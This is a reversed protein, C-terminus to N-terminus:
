QGEPALGARWSPKFTSNALWRIPGVLSSISQALFPFDIKSIEDSPAHYDPHLGFSSITHAVVGQLALNYNDSREFFNQEPHPDALVRAGHRALEPGLNSREFGTLWVRGKGVKPDARGIMEFNINAIIRELPVPSHSLFYSSGLGGLEESGFCVFYITRKPRPGTALFRAIEIVAVCGSADDDAGNFIPDGSSAKSVGLHDLHATLLIAQESRDSGTLVGIVNWTNGSELAVRQVFSRTARPLEDGAPELGFQQFLSGIYEAAIREYSTGSGRGQM